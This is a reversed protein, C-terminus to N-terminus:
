LSSQVEQSELRRGGTAPSASCIEPHQKLYELLAEAAWQHGMANWHGDHRWEADKLRAGQRLIYDYQDIVPIGRAEAMSNMQEFLFKGANKRRHSALIVLASKDRDTREKFQDLAFGTCHFAEEFAPGETPFQTTPTWNALFPAYRPRQSLLEAMHMLRADADRARPFFALTYRKAHLYNAFRSVRRLRNILRKQLSRPGASFTQARWDPDPPRLEVTGDASRAATMWPSQDPDWRADFAQLIASNDRFDNPVFVLVVLKPRLPRAFEDYLPLQNIQGTGSIGFASTTVDLHPVARGALQQLRVQFKDAIPVDVADVFSDGIIAIHCSEAARTPSPPERDAFGLSNTRSVTWFDLFNTHRVEANPQRILGVKPVFHFTHVKNMFPWPRILRFYAEGAIAILVLMAIFLLANWGVLHLLRRIRPPTLGKDM